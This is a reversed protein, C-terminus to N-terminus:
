MTASFRMKSLLSWVLVGTLCTLSLSFVKSQIVDSCRLYRIYEFSKFWYNLIIFCWVNDFYHQGKVQGRNGSGAWERRLTTQKSALSQLSPGTGPEPESVGPRLSRLWSRPRLWLGLWWDTDDPWHRPRTVEHTIHSTMHTVHCQNIRTTDQLIGM